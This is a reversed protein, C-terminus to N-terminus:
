AGGAGGSSGSSASCFHSKCDNFDGCANGNDCPTCTSGGCDVDTEEGDVIGNVCSPPLCRQEVIDCLMGNDCQNNDVCEVCNGKGDCISGGTEICTALAPEYAAGCVHDTCTPTTCSTNPGPCTSADDCEHLPNGAQGGNGGGGGRGGGGPDGQHGSGGVAVHTAQGAPDLLCGAMSVAVLCSGALVWRVPWWSGLQNM